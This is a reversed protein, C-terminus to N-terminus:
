LTLADISSTYSSLFTPVLLAAGILPLVFLVISIIMTWMFYKRTKETSVYVADIKQELTTLRAELVPDM